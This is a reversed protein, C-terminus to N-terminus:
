ITNSLCILWISRVLNRFPEGIAFLPVGVLSLALYLCFTWFDIWLRRYWSQSGRFLWIRFILYFVFTGLQTWWFLRWNSKLLFDSVTQLFDRDAVGNLINVVPKSLEEFKKKMEDIQQFGREMSGKLDEVVQERSLPKPVEEAAYVSPSSITELLFLFIFVCYYHSFLRYSLSPHCVSYRM